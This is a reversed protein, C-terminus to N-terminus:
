EKRAQLYYKKITRWMLLSDLALLGTIIWLVVSAVPDSGPALTYAASAGASFAAIFLSRPLLKGKYVIYAAFMGERPKKAKYGGGTRYALGLEVLRELHHRATSPSKFGIRRQVERVGLPEDSTLLLMYVRLSSGALSAIPDGSDERERDQRM